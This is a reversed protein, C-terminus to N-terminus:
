IKERILSSSQKKKEKSSLYEVEILKKGESVCIASTLQDAGNLMLDKVGNMYTTM